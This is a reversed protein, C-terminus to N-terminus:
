KQIRFYFKITQKHLDKMNRKLIIGLYQLKTAIMKFPIFTKMENELKVNSIYLSQWQHWIVPKSFTLM